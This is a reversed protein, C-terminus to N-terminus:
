RVRNDAVSYRLASNQFDFPYGALVNLTEGYESLVWDMLPQAIARDIRRHSRINKYGITKLINAPVEPANRGFYLFRKSILVNNSSTDRELNYVNATGDEASHHSDEQQWSATRSARHYINDGVLMTRSGNRVPRKVAFRPDSWYQDFSLKETIEMAFVCRGTADLRAGGMGFVWDGVTATSRIAPKCTALTCYGHFPNPAFGFDRDVVYLYISSVSLVQV